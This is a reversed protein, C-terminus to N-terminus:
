KVPHDIRASMISKAARAGTPLSAVLSHILRDTLAAAVDLLSGQIMTQCSRSQPNKCLAGSLNLGPDRQWLPTLKSGSKLWNGFSKPRM